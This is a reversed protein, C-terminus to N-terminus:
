DLKATYPHVTYFLSATSQLKLCCNHNKKMEQQEALDLKSWVECDTKEDYHHLSVNKSISSSPMVMPIIPFLRTPELEMLAFNTMSFHSSSFFFNLIKWCYLIKCYQRDRTCSKPLSKKLHLCYFNLVHNRKLLQM